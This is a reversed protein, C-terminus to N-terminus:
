GVHATEVFGLWGIGDGGGHGMSHGMDGMEMKRGKEKSAM